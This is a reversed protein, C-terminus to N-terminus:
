PKFVNNQEVINEFVVGHAKDALGKATNDKDDFKERRRQEVVRRPFHIRRRQERERRLQRVRRERQGHHVRSLLHRQQVAQLKQVKHRQVEGDRTHRLHVQLDALRRCVPKSKMSTSGSRAAASSTAIKKHRHGQM